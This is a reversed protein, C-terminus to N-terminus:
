TEERTSQENDYGSIISRRVSEILNSDVYGRVRERYHIELVLFDVSYRITRDRM